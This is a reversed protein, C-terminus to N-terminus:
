TQQDAPVLARGGIRAKKAPVLSRSCVDNGDADDEEADTCNWLVASSPAPTWTVLHMAGVTAYDVCRLGRVSVDDSRASCVTQAISHDLLLRAMYRANPVDRLGNPRAAVRLLGHLWYSGIVCFALVACAMIFTILLCQQLGNLRAPEHSRHSGRREMNQKHSLTMIVGLM